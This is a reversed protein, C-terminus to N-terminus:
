KGAVILEARRNKAQGEATNNDGIPDAEGLAKTMIRDTSVGKNVLWNKAAEARRESLKLNYFEDGRSDAYGKIVLEADKNENMFSLVKMLKEVESKEITNEATSFFVPEFEPIKMSAVDDSGNLPDTGNEVEEGDKVSGNDTDAVLPNTKYKTVEEGDYLADNDSDAKLPNTKHIKIEDGDKLGDGDTDKKNPDTKHTNVEDGDNLGDGDTDANAPDTKHTNVEVGDSLGDDDSDAKNPNTQHTKIEAGDSLGDGDSDNNKPDTNYQKMEDGDNLGDGDTDASMPDTGLEDEECTTLGDNDPDVDCGEAAYAVGLSVTLYRDYDHLFGDEDNTALGNVKDDVFFNFAVNFDLVWSHSLAIETGIGSEVIPSFGSLEDDPPYSPNGPSDDLWWQAGGAGIYIYPNWSEEYLPTFLLRVDIPVFETSYDNGTYSLGQFMGYGLGAGLHFDDSLQFRGFVRAMGSFGDNEFENWPILYSGQFGIKYSYDRFQANSDNIPVVFLLSLLILLSYHLSYKRM